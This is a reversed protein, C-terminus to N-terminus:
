NMSGLWRAVIAAVSDRLTEHSTHLAECLSLSHMTEPACRWPPAGPGRRVSSTGYECRIRIADGEDIPETPGDHVSGFGDGGKRAEM